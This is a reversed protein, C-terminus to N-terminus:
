FRVKATGKETNIYINILSHGNFGNDPHQYSTSIPITICKDEEFLYATGYISAKKFLRRLIKNGRMKKDVDTGITDSLTCCNATTAARTAQMDVNVGLARKIARNIIPKWRTNLDKEFQENM